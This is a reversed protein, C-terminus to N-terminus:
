YSTVLQLSTLSLNKCRVAICLHPKHRWATDTQRDTVNTYQTLILWCIKAIKESDSLWVMRAKGYWVNHCNNSYQRLLFQQLYWLKQGIDPQLMSRQQTDDINYCKLTTPRRSDVFAVMSCILSDQKYCFAEVNRQLVVSCFKITRLQLSSASTVLLLLSGSRELYQVTSSADQPRRSLV